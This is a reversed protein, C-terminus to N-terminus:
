LGAKRLLRVLWSPGSKDVDVVEFNKTLSFRKAVAERIARDYSGPGNPAHRIIDAGSVMILESANSGFLRGDTWALLKVEFAQSKLMKVYVTDYIRVPKGMDAIEKQSLYVPRSIKTGPNIKM